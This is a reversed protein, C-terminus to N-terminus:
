ALPEHCAFENARLKGFPQGAKGRGSVDSFYRLAELLEARVSSASV